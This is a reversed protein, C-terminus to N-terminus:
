ALAVVILAMLAGWPLGIVVGLVFALRLDRDSM